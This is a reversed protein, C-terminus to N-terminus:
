EGLKDYSFRRTPKTRYYNTYIDPHEAKLAKTDLGSWKSNMWFISHKSSIGIEGEKILAKLQNTKQEALGELHKIDAKLGELVEVMQSAEDGLMVEKGPSAQPYLRDLTDADQKTIISPMERKVVYNNWFTVERKVIDAILAEDRPIEKIILQSNGVLVCIYAKPLGTVALQHLVQCLYEGPIEEEKWEAKKWESATKIELIANEGVIRRDLRCGIFAYQPHFIVDNVRRVKKGTEEEFLEAVISEMKDGLKVNLKGSIDEPPVFGTKEAWVKLPSSWRSLNLVGPADTSGIYNQRQAIEEPTLM